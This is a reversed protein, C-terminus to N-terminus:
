QTEVARRQCMREFLRQRHRVPGIRHEHDAAFREIARRERERRNQVKGLDLAIEVAVRSKRCELADCPAFGIALRMSRCAALTERVMEGSVLARRSSRASCKRKELLADFILSLRM